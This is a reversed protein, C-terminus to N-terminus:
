RVAAGVFPRGGLNAAHTGGHALSGALLIALVGPEDRYRAIVRGITAEHHSYM